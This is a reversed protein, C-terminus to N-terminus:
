RIDKFRISFNFEVDVPKEKATKPLKGSFQLGDNKGPRGVETSKFLVRHSFNHSYNSWELFTKRIYIIV